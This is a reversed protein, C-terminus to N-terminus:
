KASELAKEILVVADKFNKKSTKSNGKGNVLVRYNRESVSVFEVNSVTGDKKTYKIYGETSGSPANELDVSDLSIGILGRYALVAKDKDVKKGNIEFSRNSDDGKIKIDYKVGDCMVEVSDVSDIYEVHITTSMLDIYPVDVFNIKSKELAYVTDGSNLQVFRYNETEKGIKLSYKNDETELYFTAYPKDLGYLSLDKAHDEMVADASLSSVTKIIKDSFVEGSIDADVPKTMKFLYPIESESNEVTNVIRIPLNNDKSIEVKKIVGYNSIDVSILTMDRLTDKTPILSETGYVNKLYIKPNNEIKVYYNENDLTKNGVLIKQKNGDKFVVEVYSSKEDFGYAVSNDDNEAVVKKASVQSCTHILAKVSTDKINISEDGNLLWKEGSKEIYYEEKSNKINLRIISDSDSEFINFMETVEKEETEINMNEDPIVNTVVYACIGLLAIIVAIIIVNRYLKM